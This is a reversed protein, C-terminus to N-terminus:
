RSGSVWCRRAMPSPPPHYAGPCVTRISTAMCSICRAPWSASVALVLLMWDKLPIFVPLSFLYFGIDKGFQPDNGGYPVQYIFRLILDWQGAEGMAILLGVALAVALILLRWPLRASVLGFLGAPTGPLAPVSGFGPDLAQRFRLRRRWAFRFALAANVWLLLSSVAFVVLFLATKTLSCRGSSASM